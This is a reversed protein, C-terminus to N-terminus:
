FRRDGYEAADYKVVLKGDIANRVTGVREDEHDGIQQLDADTVITAAFDRDANHDEYYIVAQAVQDLSIFPRTRVIRIKIIAKAYNGVLHQLEGLSVTNVNHNVMRDDKERMHYRAFWRNAFAVTLASLTVGQQFIRAQAPLTNEFKILDEKAAAKRSSGHGAGGLWRIRKDASEFGVLIAGDAVRRSLLQTSAGGLEQAFGFASGVDSEGTELGTAVIVQHFLGYVIESTINGDAGRCAPVRGEGKGKDRTRVFKVLVTPILVPPRDSELGERLVNQANSWYSRKWRPDDKGVVEMSAIEYGDAIWLNKPTPSLDLAADPLGARPPLPGDKTKVLWDLRLTGPFSSNIDKGIWLIQAAGEELAREVAQAAAPGAGRVLVLGGRAMKANELTINTATYLRPVWPAKRRTSLEATLSPPAKFKSRSQGPGTCIDVKAAKITVPSDHLSIVYNLDDKKIESVSGWVAPLPDAPGIVQNKAPETLLGAIELRNIEAFSTSKLWRYNEEETREGQSTDGEGPQNSYGPLTLLELEQNMNHPHYNLWPDPYGIHRIKLNVLRDGEAWKSQVLTAHDVTAAFGRGIIAYCPPDNFANAAKAPAQGSANLFAHIVGRERTIRQAKEDQTEKPHDERKAIQTEKSADKRIRKTDARWLPDPM